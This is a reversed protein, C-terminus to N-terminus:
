QAYVIGHPTIFHGVWEDTVYGRVASKGKTYPAKWSAAKFVAGDSKRVFGYVSAHGSKDEKIVKWYVSGESVRIDYRGLSPFNKDMYEDCLNRVTEVFYEFALEIEDIDYNNHNTSM